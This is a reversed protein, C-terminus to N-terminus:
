WMALLGADNRESILLQCLNMNLCNIFKTFLSSLRQIKCLRNFAVLVQMEFQSVIPECMAESDLECRDACRKLLAHEVDDETDSLVRILGRCIPNHNKVNRRVSIATILQELSVEKNKLKTFMFVIYQAEGVGPYRHLSDNPLESTNIKKKEADKQDPAGIECIALDEKMAENIRPPSPPIPSLPFICNFSDFNPIEAPHNPKIPTVPMPSLPPISHLSENLINSEECQAIDGPSTENGEMRQCSSDSENSKENRLVDRKETPALSYKDNTCQEICAQENSEENQDIIGGNSASIANSDNEIVDTLDTLQDQLLVSYNDVTDTITKCHVLKESSYIVQNESWTTANENSVSSDTQRPHMESCKRVNFEVPYIFNREPNSVSDHNLLESDQVFAHNNGQRKRKPSKIEHCKDETDEKQDPINKECIEKVYIFSQESKDYIGDRTTRVEDKSSIDDTNNEHTESVFEKVNSEAEEVINGRRSINVDVNLTETSGVESVVGENGMDHLAKTVETSTEQSSTEAATQSETAFVKVGSTKVNDGTGKNVMDQECSNNFTEHLVCNERAEGGSKDCDFQKSEDVVGCDTLSIDSKELTEEGDISSLRRIKRQRPKEVLFGATSEELSRSRTVRVDVGPTNLEKPIIESQSRLLTRKTSVESADIESQRSFIGFDFMTNGKKRRKRSRLTMLKGGFEPPTLKSQEIRSQGENQPIIEDDASEHVNENGKCEREHRSCDINGDRGTDDNNICEDTSHNICPSPPLPSLCPFDPVDFLENIIDMLLMDKHKEFMESRLKEEQGLENESTKQEIQKVM